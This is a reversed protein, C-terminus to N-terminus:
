LQRRQQTAARALLAVGHAAESHEARRVPVGLCRERIQRWVENIAGGGSSLVVNPYPAGLDRLRQYGDAEIRAIGELVGHLFAARNVPQPGLRPRKDPDNVPFREGVAPLPYYDLGTATHPDIERSLAVLEEDTFHQRLVAGGSNSAGGVLWRDGIRHSYVGFRSAFVPKDSFIKLVLTSGLSTVADGSREIGAALAAANSDTTGAVVLTDPRLGFRSASATSVPGLPAGVPVVDPLLTGDGVLQNVWAPWGRAVPDYGLKLCNNEDSIGVAGRLRATIWDAQHLAHLRDDATFGARLYLLKALASGPGRAASDLPATQAIQHAQEVARTDDYMLAPTCPEGKGDCLLLSSSTGDVCLARVLAGRESAIEDLVTSVAQWWDGPDQESHGVQSRRSGPLPARAEAVPKGRDDIAIARCGSTGLDIGVYRSVSADHRPM